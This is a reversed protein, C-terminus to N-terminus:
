RIKGALDLRLKITISFNRKQKRHNAFFNSLFAKLLNVTILVALYCAQQSHFINM